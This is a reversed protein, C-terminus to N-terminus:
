PAEHAAALRGCSCTGILIRSLTRLNEDPYHLLEGDAPQWARGTMFPATTAEAAAVPVSAVAEQAAM